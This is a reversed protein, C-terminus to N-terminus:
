NAAEPYTEGDLYDIYDSYDNYDLYDSYDSYDNHDHYEGWSDSYDQFRLPKRKEAIRRRIVEQAFTRTEM